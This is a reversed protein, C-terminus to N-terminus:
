QLRKYAEVPILADTTANRYDLKGADTAPANPSNTPAMSGTPVTATTTRRSQAHAQPAAITFLAASAALLFLKM